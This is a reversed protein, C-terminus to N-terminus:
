GILYDQVRSDCSTVAKQLNNFRAVESRIASITDWQIRNTAIIRGINGLFKVELRHLVSDESIKEPM